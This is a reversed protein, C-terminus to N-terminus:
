RKMGMPTMPKSKLTRIAHMIRKWFAKDWPCFLRHVESSPSTFAKRRPAPWKLFEPDFNAESLIFPAKEGVGRAQRVVLGGGAYDGGWYIVQPHLEHLRTLLANFDKDAVTIGDFSLTTGGLSEFRRKFEEAVGQGYATKDHIICARLAKLKQVAFDAAFPGQVDDTTNVRFIAKPYHWSPDLQQQTLKPNSAAPSIMALHARAYVQSAPISCGSNFHGVVAIVSPDSVIRNAVDVAEKPDSRDDFAEIEVKFGPYRHQRDAQELALEAARKIGQGLEAIDGTLPLAVAIRVVKEHPSCGPLISFASGLILVGFILLACSIKKQESKQNMM